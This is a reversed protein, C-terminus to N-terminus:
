PRGRARLAREEAVLRLIWDMVKQPDDLFLTFGPSHWPNPCLRNALRKSKWVWRGFFVGRSILPAFPLFKRNWIGWVRGATLYADSVLYSSGDDVKAVYKAVYYLLQRWGKMAQVELRVHEVARGDDTVYPEFGIVEEWWRRLEAQNVFPLGFVLLHFHPAGRWQFELRWVASAKPWRRRLRKLFNALHVKAARADPWARAYTLTVFKPREARSARLADLRHLKEMLRKRSARSFGKVEGRMGGGYRRGTGGCRRQKVVRGQREVVMSPNRDLIESSGTEEPSVM